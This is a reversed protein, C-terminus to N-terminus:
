QLQQSQGAFDAGLGGSSLLMQALRQVDFNKDGSKVLAAALAANKGQIAGAGAKAAMSLPFTVLSPLGTGLKKSVSLLANSATSGQAVKKIAAKEADSFGRLKGDDIKDSLRQFTPQLNGKDKGRAIAKEVVAGREARAYIPDAQAFEPIGQAVFDKFKKLMMVGVRREGKDISGAADQLTKTVAQIQPVSMSGGTAFDDFTKLAENIKPYATSVRGTPSVVGANQALERMQDALSITGSQNITVGSNRAAEYLKGAEDKLDAVAPAVPKSFLGALGRAVVPAAAGVAAGGMAGESAGQLREQVGGPKSTAGGIAGLTGGTASSAAVTKLLSPVAKAANELIAREPGMTALGTGLEVASGLMGEKERALKLRADEMRQYDSFAGLGPGGGGTAQRLGSGLAGLGSDIEDALGFTSGQDKLAGLDAGFTNKAYDAFQQDNMQPFQTRHLHDLAADYSQQTTPVPPGIPGPKFARVADVTSGESAIYADIDSEPANMGVMKAVNRKVRALDTM